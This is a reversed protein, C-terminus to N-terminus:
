APTEETPVVVEEVVPVPKRTFIGGEYTGGIECNEAELVIEDAGVIPALNSLTEASQEGDFYAINKVIGDKIYAYNTM